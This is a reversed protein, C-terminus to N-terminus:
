NLIGFKKKYKNKTKKETTFYNEYAFSTRFNRVHFNKVYSQVVRISCDIMYIMFSYKLLDKACFYLSNHYGCTSYM